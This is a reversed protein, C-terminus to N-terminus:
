RIFDGIFNVSVVGNWENKNLSGSVEHMGASTLVDKKDAQNWLILDFHNFFTLKLHNKLNGMVKVDTIYSADFKFLINPAEFGVGYPKFHRIAELYELFEIVDIGIDGTKDTSIVFDYVVEFTEPPLENFVKEVDEILQAYGVLLDADNKFGTGFAFNHGAAWIVGKMRDIFPYWVPSRGSGSYSVGDEDLGIVLVPKGTQLMVQQALLGRIGGPADTMYIYPAFDQKSSLMQQLYKAVVAKREQNLDYLYEVDKYQTDGFFVRFARELSGNMRKVSNFMPALYFGLFMEDISNEDTIKGTNVHIQLCEALGKFVSRYVSCGNMYELMERNRCLRLVALADRLLKRNEYLVPMSDSISGIGAFV